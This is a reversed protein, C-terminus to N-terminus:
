PTHGPEQLRLDALVRQVLEAPARERCHRAVLARVEREFDVRDWCPPCDALHDRIITELDSPCEGDLYEHLRRLADRCHEDM